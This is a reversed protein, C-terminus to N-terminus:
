GNLDGLGLQSHMFTCDEIIRMRNKKRRKNIQKNVLKVKLSTM